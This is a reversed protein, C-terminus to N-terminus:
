SKSLHSRILNIVSRSNPFPEPCLRNREITAQIESASLKNCKICPVFGTGHFQRPGKNKNDIRIFDKICCEPYGFFRGMITYWFKNPM